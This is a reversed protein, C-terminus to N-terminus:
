LSPRLQGLLICLLCKVIFRQYLNTMQKEWPLFASFNRKSTNKSWKSTGFHFILALLTSVHFLCGDVNTLSEEERLTEAM